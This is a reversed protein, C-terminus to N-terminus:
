GRRRYRALLSRWIGVLVVGVVAPLVMYTFTASLTEYWGVFGHWVFIGVTYLFASVLTCAIVLLMGREPGTVSEAGAVLIPLAGGIVGLGLGLLFRPTTVDGQLLDIPGFVSAVTTFFVVGVLLSILLRFRM